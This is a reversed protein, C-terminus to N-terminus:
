ESQWSRSRTSAADSRFEIRWETLASDTCPPDALITCSSVNYKDIAAVMQWFQESSLEGMATQGSQCSPLVLEFVESSETLTVEDVGDSQATGIMDAFVKSNVRLQEKTM